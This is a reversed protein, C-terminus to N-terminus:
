VNEEVIGYKQFAWLIGDEDPTPAVDDAVAKVTAGAQAMAIGLGVMRLMSIDNEGDGMAMCDAPSLGYHALVAAIGVHKGGDEPIVDCTLDNWRVICSRRLTAKLPVEEDPTLYPSLSYVDGGAFRRLEPVPIDVMTSHFFRVRDDIRNISLARLESVMCAFGREDSLRLTAAVDDSDLPQDYLMRGDALYCIQGNLAVFGDLPVDDLLAGEGRTFTNRGTAAFVKIGRSRAMAIARLASAPIDHTLPSTLTNDVDLFVIKIM